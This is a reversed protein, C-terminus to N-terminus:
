ERAKTAQSLDMDRLRRMGTYSSLAVFAFVLLTAVVFVWFPLIPRLAMHETSFSRIYLSNLCAGLPLGVLLGIAGLVFLEVAALWATARTSFGLSRLTALERTRELLSVSAVSHIASGALVAGFSLLIGIFIFMFAMQENIQETLDATTFALAVEDFRELRHKLPETQSAQCAIQGGYASYPFCRDALSRRVDHFEGYATNGIAEDVLGAVQLTTEVRRRRGSRVWEVRVPDGREVLLRSALRQPLWVKGPEVRVPRGSASRVRLLQRGRELGTLMLEASGWATSVRVPLSVTFSIARAGPLAALSRAVPIGAPRTFQVDIQYKRSGTLFDNIADHTSVDIGLTTIAITVGGAIGAVALLTRSARRFIGRLPIRYPISVFETRAVLRQQLAQGRPDEIDGRMAVAPQLRAAMRAPLYAAAVGTGVALALGILVTNWHLSTLVLPLHLAEAYMGNLWVALWHGLAVGPVAGALSILLGQAVHQVLIQRSSFGSAKLVGIVTVQLRVLRALAGYLSLGASTLFLIPFFVSMQAFGQQDLALLRKSPQDDQVYSTQVGYPQALGKLKELVDAEYGPDTLCHLETIQRGVGLWERARDEDIFVVGFTGRSVFVAYESPVPYVYEPSLAFGVITFERESSRYSCKLRDGLKYGNEAAFQYELVAEDASALYRGQTIWLDNIPPRHARPCGVFRGLVRERKRGRQILAGDEVVRGLAARVHPITRATNALSEPGANFLVSADAFRTRRYIHDYIGTLNQYAEYPGVFLMVGLCILVILGITQRALARSDAWVKRWLM